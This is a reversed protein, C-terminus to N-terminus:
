FTEVWPSCSWKGPGPRQPRRTSVAPLERRHRRSAAPGGRALAESRTRRQPDGGDIVFHAVHINQPHLERAMSQALGRLAFKGMAFPASKPYGKVGASAGTFLITGHGAAADAARCAPAVLFAGFACVTLRRRSRRRRGARRVTRARPPRTTSRSTPNRGRGPGAGCVARAVTAPQGRRLRLGEGGDRPASGRAQRHQAGGAGVAMRGTSCGRRALRQSRFRRRRHPRDRAGHSKM